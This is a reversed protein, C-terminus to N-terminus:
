SELWAKSVSVILSVSSVSKASRVIRNMERRQVVRNCGGDCCALWPLQGAVWKLPDTGFSKYIEGSGALRGFDLFDFGYSKGSSDTLFTIM